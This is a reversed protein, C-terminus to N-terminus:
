RNGRVVNWDYPGPRHAPRDGDLGLKGCTVVDRGQAPNSPLKRVIKVLLKAQLARGDRLSIIVEPADINQRNPPGNSEDGTAQKEAPSRPQTTPEPREQGSARGPQPVSPSGSCSASSSPRSNPALDMLHHQTRSPGPHGAEPSPAGDIGRQTTPGTPHRSIDSSPRTARGIVAQGCGTCPEHNATTTSAPCASQDAPRLPDSGARPASPRSLM